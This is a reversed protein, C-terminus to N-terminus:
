CEDDKIVRVPEADNGYKARYEELTIEKNSGFDRVFIGSGCSETKPPITNWWYQITRMWDARCDKCVRLTYFHKKQNVFDTVVEETITEKKFPINLEMMEYFCAMWLTRRDEGVEKCRQCEESM